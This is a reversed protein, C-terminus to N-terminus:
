KREYKKREGGLAAKQAGISLKKLAFEHQLTKLAATEERLIDVTEILRNTNIKLDFQDQGGYSKDISDLLIQRTLNRNYLIRGVSNVILDIWESSLKDELATSLRKYFSQLTFYPMGNFRGYKYKLKELGAKDITKLDPEKEEIISKVMQDWVDALIKAEEVIEKLYEKTLDHEQGSRDMLVKFAEVINGSLKIPSLLDM